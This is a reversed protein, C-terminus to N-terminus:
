NINITFIFPFFCVTGFSYIDTYTPSQWYGLIGCETSSQASVYVAFLVVLATLIIGKM